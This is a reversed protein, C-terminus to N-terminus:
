SFSIRTGPFSSIGWIVSGVASPPGTIRPSSLIISNYLKHKLTGSYVLSANSHCQQLMNTHHCPPPNNDLYQKNTMKSVKCRAWEEGFYIYLPHLSQPHDQKMHICLPPHVNTCALRLRRCLRISPM